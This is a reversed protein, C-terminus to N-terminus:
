TYKIMDKLSEIYRRTLYSVPVDSLLIVHSILVRIASRSMTTDRFNTFFRGINIHGTANEGAVGYMLGKM